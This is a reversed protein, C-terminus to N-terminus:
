KLHYALDFLSQVLFSRLFVILFFAIIPSFDIPGMLPLFRRIPELIPETSRYLFQVLPNFPDPSVWSILIRILLLWWFISLVMGLINAIAIILNSLIFM